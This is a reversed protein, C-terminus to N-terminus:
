DNEVLGNKLAEDMEKQHETYFKYDSFQSKKFKTTNNPNAPNSPSGIPNANNGFLYPSSTQLEAIAETMGTVNGHEDVAVKTRDVLKILVNPDVAKAKVAENILARDIAGNKITEQLQTITQDKTTIVEGFKKEEILKAEDEKAKAEKLARAEKAEDNLQKFRPHNFARPDDFFKAFQDDSVKSVDLETKTPDTGKNPDEAPPTPPNNVPAPNPAPNPNTETM